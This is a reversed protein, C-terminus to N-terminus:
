KPRSFKELLPKELIVGANSVLIDLGGMDEWIRSVLSDLEEIATLDQEYVRAERGLGRILDAVKEVEQKPSKDM